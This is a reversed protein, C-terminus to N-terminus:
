VTGALGQGVRTPTLFNDDHRGDSNVAGRLWPLQHGDYVLSDQLHIPGAIREGDL